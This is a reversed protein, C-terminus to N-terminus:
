SPATVCACCNVTAHSIQLGTTSRPKARPMTWTICSWPCLRTDFVLDDIDFLVRRGAARARVVLDALEPTYRCHCLVIVDARALIEDSCWLDAFSFWSAGITPDLALAELMNLVRYRFTGQNPKPYIYAVHAHGRALRRLRRTLPDPWPARYRVAPMDLVFM